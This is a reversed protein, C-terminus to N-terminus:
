ILTNFHRTITPITVINVKQATSAASALWPLIPSQFMVMVIPPFMGFMGSIDFNGGSAAACIFAIPIDMPEFVILICCQMVAWSTADSTGATSELLFWLQVVDLMLCVPLVMLASM